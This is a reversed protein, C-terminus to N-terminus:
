EFLSSIFGIGKAAAAAPVTFAGIGPIVSVAGLARATYDSYKHIYQAHESSRQKSKDANDASEIVADTDFKENKRLDPDNLIHIIASLIFGTIISLLTFLVQRTFSSKTTSIKYFIAISIIILGIRSSNKEKEIFNGLLNKERDLELILTLIVLQSVITLCINRIFNKKKQLSSLFEKM